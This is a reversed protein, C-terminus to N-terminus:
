MTITERKCKCSFTGESTLSAREDCKVYNTNHRFAFVTDKYGDHQQCKQDHISQNNSQENIGIELQHLHIQTIRKISKKEDLNSNM